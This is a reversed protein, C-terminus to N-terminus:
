VVLSRVGTILPVASAPLVMVTTTAPAVYVIVAVPLPVHLISVCVAVGVLPVKEGLRLPLLSTAIVLVSATPLLLTSVLVFSNVNSVMSGTIGVTM